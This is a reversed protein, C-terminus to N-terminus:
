RDRAPPRDDRTIDIEFFREQFYTAERIQEDSFGVGDPVIVLKDDRDNLRHIVAICRGEFSQLPHTVGMVYADLEEGDGSQIGPLFGYNIPYTYGFEPHRSGLQRDIEVRILKGIFDRPLM